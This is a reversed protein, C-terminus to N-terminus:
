SRPRPLSGPRTASGCARRRSRRSSRSRSRTSARRKGAYVQRSSSSPVASRKSLPLPSPARRPALGRCRRPPRRPRRGCSGAALAEGDVPQPVPQREVARGDVAEDAAVSGRDDLAVPRREEEAALASSTETRWRTTPSGSGSSIRRSRSVSRQAAVVSSGSPERTSYWNSIRRPSWWSRKLSGSLGRTACLGIPELETHAAVPSRPARSPAGRGRPGAPRSRRPTARAALRQAAVLRELEVQRGAEAGRQAIRQQDHM